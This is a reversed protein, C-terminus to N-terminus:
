AAEDRPPDPTEVRWLEQAQPGFFQFLLNVHRGIPDRDGRAWRGITRHNTGLAEAMQRYTSHGRDRMMALFRGADFGKGPRSPSPIEM